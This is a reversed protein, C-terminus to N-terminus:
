NCGIEMRMNGISNLPFLSVQCFDVNSNLHTMTLHSHSSTSSDIVHGQCLLNREWDGRQKSRERQKVLTWIVDDLLCHACLKTIPKFDKGRFSGRWDSQGPTVTTVTQTTSDSKRARKAPRLIAPLEDTPDPAVDEWLNEGSTIATKLEALYKLERQLSRM